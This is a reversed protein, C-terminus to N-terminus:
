PARRDALALIRRAARVVPADVMKGDVVCVGGGAADIAAVVRSARAVDAATPTFAANIADIQRPHIALKGTFGIRRARASEAALSSADDLVLHPVDIVAVGATAAAHVLRQRSWALAEWDVDVGLDAALDAGGFALGVVRPHTAIREAELVGRATEVLPVLAPCLAGLLRAVLVLDRESEVKPVILVDPTCRAELLALVDRLGDATQLANMRLCRVVRAVGPRGVIEIAHRRAAVKDDPPVADELDFIVADAGSALAKTFRDPVNAPCFLWSRLHGAEPTGAM